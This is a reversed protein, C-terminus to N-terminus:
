RCPPTDWPVERISATLPSGALNGQFIDVLFYRGDAYCAHVEAHFAKGGRGPNVVLAEAGSPLVSEAAAVVQPCGAELDCRIIPLPSACGCVVLILGLLSARM